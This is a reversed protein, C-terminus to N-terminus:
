PLSESRPFFFSLLSLSLIRKGAYRGGAMGQNDGGANNEQNTVTGTTVTTGGAKNSIQGKVVCNYM